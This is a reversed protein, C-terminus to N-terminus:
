DWRAFYTEAEEQTLGIFNRLQDVIQGLHDYDVIFSRLEEVKSQWGAYSGGWRARERPVEPALLAEYEDIRALVSENSLTNEMHYSLRELFQERFAENQILSRTITLHQWTQNPSLVHSMPRHYYFAWDLDYFALEWRNGNETSKFYRLNQQVDGNTSYGEIIMWDILSDLNLRSAVYAYHEPQTMDYDYCYDLLEFFEDSLGAPAQTVRVSEPSVGRNEAYFLETFAEKVCYIGFYEGNIYLVCFKDRQALVQSSMDRCLSTFLEDRFISSPYDQGARVCLSDFIQPGDEGYVPYTLYKQGYQGRFNVKFSKKPNELGMHGHLKLGCDISFGGDAEYMTFNCPIERDEYYNTYIGYSGFLAGPDAAISLVPLTHNENVIYSATTVRSPPQGEAYSIARIVTTADVRLPQTYLPSDETPVSGDLTYRIEGEGSLAVAFGETDNYIGGEPFCTPAATLNPSGQGNPQGPTPVSYYVPVNSGESRGMSGQNPVDLVHLVDRLTGDAATLYVWSEERGLTFPASGPIGAAGTCLIVTREGPSLTEEPLRFRLLESASDSLYYQSLSVPHDSRNELEVWDYCKGDSQRLYRANSPMVETIVLAGEPAHEELYAFYGDETNEYGPTPRGSVLYSGDEQLAWTKDKELAPCQVSSLLNGLRGTLLVTCGEGPLSFAAEEPSAEAGACLIVKREGPSLKMSPIQWKLPEEPDNSLYAGDLAVTRAGPNYLEVWDCFGGSAARLTSRNRTMVESIVVGSGEAGMEALWAEYGAPSNEFGPTAPAEAAWTGDERRVWPVNAETKPVAVEDICVQASNYLYVTDKGDKSIGFDAFGEGGGKKCWCVLYGNAPLVTGKPFTYGISDPSDSLMYGSLDVGSDSLNRVEIFDALVGGPGPYTRNSALIESIAVAATPHETEAEGAPAPLCLWLALALAFLAACVVLGTRIQKGEM